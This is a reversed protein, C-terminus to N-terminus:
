SSGRLARCIEIMESKVEVLDATRDAFSVISIM